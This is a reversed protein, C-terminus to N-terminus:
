KGLPQPKAVAFGQAYNVGLTKLVVLTQDDEVWEAITQIGMLQAVDNVSKVMALNIPDRACNKVVSGDIKLYDVQLNKLYAFSSMGSGSDDLAFRCVLAKLM